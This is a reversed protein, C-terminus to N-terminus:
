NLLKGVRLREVARGTFDDRGSERLRKMLKKRAAEETDGGKERFRRGDKYYSIRWFRSDPRQYVMGEGYNKREAM